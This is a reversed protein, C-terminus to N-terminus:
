GITLQVLSMNSKIDLKSMYSIDVGLCEYAAGGVDKELLVFLSRMFLLYSLVVSLGM